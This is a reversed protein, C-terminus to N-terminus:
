SPMIRGSMTTSLMWLSLPMNQSLPCNQWEKAIPLIRDTMKSIMAPSAEVGYVSHLHETIDRTTMGKAYMTLVQDEISSIDTQHKKVIQPEFDGDRDRPIDLDIDGMSSTVTKKSYGNRRNDTEKSKYDYKSYGLDEELEAELMGQLTDGLLDKLMSQVGEADEPKYTALLQNILSRREETLKRQRAM